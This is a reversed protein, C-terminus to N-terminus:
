EVMKISRNYKLHTLVTHKEKTKKRKQIHPYALGKYKIRESSGKEATTPRRPDCEMILEKLVLEPQKRLLLM